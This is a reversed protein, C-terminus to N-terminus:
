SNFFPCPGAGMLVFFDKVDHDRSLEVAKAELTKLEEEFKPILFKPTKKFGRYLKM